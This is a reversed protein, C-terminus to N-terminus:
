VAGSLTQTVNVSGSTRVMRNISAQMRGSLRPSADPSATAIKVTHASARPTPTASAAASGYHVSPMPATQGSVVAFGNKRTAIRVAAPGSARAAAHRGAAHPVAPTYDVSPTAAAREGAVAFGNQHTARRIAVTQARTAAAAHQPPGYDVTPHVATASVGGPAAPTPTAQEGLVTFGNQHTARRIQRQQAAAISASPYYSPDRNFVKVTSSFTTGDILKGSVTANTIGSPLVVDTGKFVFTADLFEDANIFRDFGFSPHAGGLTVSNPDIKTVDFGSSGIINVRIDTPHATNIHRNEHPNIIVPPSVPPCVPPPTVPPTAQTLRFSQEPFFAEGIGTDEQSGAFAGLSIVSDGTLAKGTEQLYLQSFHTIAFELNPHAPSNVKYVNGAFQPLPTGFDPLTTPPLNTNVIAQAVQYQKPSGPDNISFGAVVDAYGTGRLDLFAGMYESSGFDPYDQFTPNLALVAPDVTGDNGNNDADGSIVQGPHTPQQSAPQELGVSLTDDGPTYTVRIANLDFGSVKVLPALAPDTITPHQVTPNNPLVVVGPTTTAPFDILVNGTFNVALLQRHDLHEM